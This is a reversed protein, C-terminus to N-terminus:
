ERTDVDSCSNELMLIETPTEKLVNTWKSTM